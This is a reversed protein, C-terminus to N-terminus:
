EYIHLEDDTFTKRKHIRYKLELGRLMIKRVMGITSRYDQIACRKLDREIKSVFYLIQVCKETFTLLTSYKM